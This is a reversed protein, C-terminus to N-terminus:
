RYSVHGSGNDIYTHMALIRVETYLCVNLFSMIIVEARGQHNGSICLSSGYVVLLCTNTSVTTYLIILYAHLPFAM